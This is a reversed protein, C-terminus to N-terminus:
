KILSEIKKISGYSNYIYDFLWDEADNKINLKKTLNIYLDNQEIELKNIKDRTKKIMERQQPTFKM